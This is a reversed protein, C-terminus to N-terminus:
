RAASIFQSPPTGTIENYASAFDSYRLTPYDSSLSASLFGIGAQPTRSILQTMKSLMNRYQAQHSFRGQSAPTKRKAAPREAGFLGWDYVGSFTCRKPATYTHPYVETCDGIIHRVFRLCKQLDAIDTIEGPTHPNYYGCSINVCSVKLKKRKLSAVDSLMGIERRYGYMNHKVAQIFEKSCLSIGDIDVIMDGNGKRDCQLVFRCDDFFPMFAKGSGVCGREEETFFACKLVEYEELCKLAVWIGNKDDAGIGCFRHLKSDYGFIFRDDSVVVEYNPSRQHVEDTHAVVCPYTQAHGKVAYINGHKDTCYRVGPIQELRETIFRIMAQERGSPSAIGYLVKLLEM